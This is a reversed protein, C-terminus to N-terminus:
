ARAIVFGFPNLQGEAYEMSKVVDGKVDEIVQPKDTLNFACTFNNHDDFRDFMIVDEGKDHFRIDGHRFIPHDKRWKLFDRTFHLLSDPKEEQVSV